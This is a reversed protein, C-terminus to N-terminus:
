RDSMSARVSTPADGQLMARIQDRADEALLMRDAVTRDATRIPVGVQVRVKGPTITLRGAPMLPFTGSIAIPVLSASSKLALHVAGRKFEMLEGTRSRTGEPFLLISRGGRIRAAAKDISDRASRSNGRDLFIMGCARMAWGFLPVYGWEKKSILRFNYKLSGLLVWVDLNSSHNAVFVFSEDPLEEDCRVTVQVGGLWLITKAWVKGLWFSMESSPSLPWVLIALVSGILSLIPIGFLTAVRRLLGVLSGARSGPISGARVGTGSPKTDPLADDVSTM